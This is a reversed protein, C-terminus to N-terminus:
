NTDEKYTSCQNPYKQEGDDQSQPGVALVFNSRYQDHGIAWRVCVNKKKTVLWARRQWAKEPHIKDQEFVQRSM